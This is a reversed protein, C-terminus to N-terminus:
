SDSDMSSTYMYMYICIYITNYLITNYQITHYPITHYQIYYYDATM